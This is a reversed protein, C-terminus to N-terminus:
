QRYDINEAMLKGSSGFIYKKQWWNEVAAPLKIKSAAKQIKSTFM